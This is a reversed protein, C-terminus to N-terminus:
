KLAKEAFNIKETTGLDYWRKSTDLYGTLINKKAIELWSDIISFRDTHTILDVFKPSIVYIGSFAYMDYESYSKEVWRFEKKNINAWGILYLENNFLLLRQTNRKRVCLTAVSESKRHFEVLNSFNVDSIIDVNHVLVPENGSIFKKAKLIAGGTDLLHNREDSITINVGFNNNYALASATGLHMIFDPKFEKIFARVKDGENLNLYLQNNFDSDTKDIGIYRIKTDTLHSILESGIYGASGTIIM